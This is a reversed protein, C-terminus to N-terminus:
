RVSTPLYNVHQNATEDHKVEDMDLGLGTQGVWASCASARVQTFNRNRRFVMLFSRKVCM